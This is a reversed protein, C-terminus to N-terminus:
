INVGQKVRRGGVIVSQKCHKGWGTGLIRATVQIRCLNCRWTSIRPGLVHPSHPSWARGQRAVPRGLTSLRPFIIDRPPFQSIWGTTIFYIQFIDSLRMFVFQTVCLWLLGTSLINNPSSCLHVRHQPSVNPIWLCVIVGGARSVHTMHQVCERKGAGAPHQSLPFMNLETWRCLVKLFISKASTTNKHLSFLPPLSNLVRSAWMGSPCSIIIDGHQM